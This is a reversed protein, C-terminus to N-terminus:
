SLIARGTDLDRLDNNYSHFVPVVHDYLVFSGAFIPFHTDFFCIVILFVTLNYPFLVFLFM